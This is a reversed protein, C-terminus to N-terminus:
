PAAVLAQRALWTDFGRQLEALRRGLSRELLAVDPVAGGALEALYARFGAALAGDEGDLLYRVLGTAQSYHLSRRGAAVFSGWPAALLDSLPALERRRWADLLRRRSALAGRQQLWVGGSRGALPHAASTGGWTGLALRGDAGIRCSALDSAMGEELWAPLDAGFAERNLLHTAEHVLLSPLLDEGEDGVFLSAVGGRAHGRADQVTPEVSGAAWARYSAEAAYLVIAGRPGEVALGFRRLYADALGDGVSRLRELLREHRSDTYLTFSGLTAPPLPDVLHALAGELLAPDPVPRPAPPPPRSAPAASGDMAAPERGDAPAWGVWAGYRVRVWSERRELVPLEVAADVTVLSESRPDPARRLRVGASIELTEEGASLDFASPAGLPPAPPTSPQGPEGRAALFLLLVSLRLM